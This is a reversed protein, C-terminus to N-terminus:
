TVTLKLALDTVALIVCFFLITPFDSILSGGLKSFTGITCTQLLPSRESATAGHVEPNWLTREGDPTKM